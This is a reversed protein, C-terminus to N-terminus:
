RQLIREAVFLDEPTTVKINDYSGESLVVEGGMAQFLSADDTFNDHPRKTFADMVLDLRFTQPTQVEWYQSRDVAVTQGDAQQQRLSAKVPVCAVAAGFQAAKSYADDLMARSAFPRVGDQIAVLTEAPAASQSHLAALGAWVSLTRTAGGACARVRLQDAPPLSQFVLTDWLDMHDAPLAVVIKLQPDYALFRELTRLLLAKGGLALFQKPLSSRMRKGSGGAVILATKHM